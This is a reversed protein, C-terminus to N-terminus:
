RDRVEDGLQVQGSAVDAVIHDDRQPGSVKVEGVKVGLRYVNLRQGIAPLHGVPFNLVAFRGAANFSAVRGTLVSDPTIILSSEPANRPGLSNTSIARAALAYADNNGGGTPAM